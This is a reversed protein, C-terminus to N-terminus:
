FYKKATTENIVVSMPTKLATQADGQLMPITFVKFLTSDAYTVRHELVNQNGKKVKVGGYSRFRMTSEIEPFDNQFAAALPAPTQAYSRDSGAFKIDNNIRYIRDAKLNHKDYSVEDIVYFVILMCVCLGLALGFVNIITFGKNKKM